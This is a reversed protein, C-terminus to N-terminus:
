GTSRMIRLAALRAAPTATVLSRLDEARVGLADALDSCRRLVEAISALRRVVFVRGQVEPGSRGYRHQTWVSFFRVYTAGVMVAIVVDTPTGGAVLLVLAACLFVAAQKLLGTLEAKVPPALTM